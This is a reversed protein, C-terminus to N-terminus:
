KAYSLAGLLNKLFDSSATNQLEISIGNSLSLRAVPSNATAPMDANSSVVRKPVPLEVFTGQAECALLCAERVRRLRYYYNAKTIGREECWVDLKMDSPRNQSERILEAWQQLRVNEAVISTKTKM